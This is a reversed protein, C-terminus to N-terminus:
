TLRLCPIPDVSLFPESPYVCFEASPLNLCQLMIITVLNECSLFICLRLEHLCHIISM